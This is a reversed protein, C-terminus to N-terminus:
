RARVHFSVEGLSAGDRAVVSLTHRGATAPLKGTFPAGLSLVEEGDVRVALPGQGPTAVIKLPITQVDPPLEPNLRFVDGSSPSLIRPGEALPPAKTDGACAPALWPERAVGTRQAWDYYRPGWDVLRGSRDSLARCRGEIAPPLTPALHKHLGCTKTPAKGKAFVEDMATPCDPGALEGSLPCIRAHELGAPDYLPRPHIGAMAELMLSHFIPGAGTIGSVEVMRSGDFNGAWVAVTREHTFGATWNDSYGKSTGTKAAVAFPLRLVSDLGFARSRAANDSLIDTVQKVASADAFRHKELEPQLPIESGDVRYAHRILRLPGVVGDLSLGRYGRALEWLSVEGDGLVLGLGYHQASDTLAEFGANRLTHLLQVPGLAEAVRVAPINYSNALAERARVPGHELGDYNKPSYGGNAAEFTARLDPLTTAPSMGERFAEAYAFPKLASGPQRHMRVGDNQGEIQDNFYDASGVYALIEGTDNDVTLAAASSVRRASLKGVEDAVIEEAANQLSPDLTTVIRTADSLGWAKLNAAILEVAHPARFSSRFATLDLPEQQAHEADERPVLGLAGMRGLVWKRRRELRAFHRYPDYVAPGRPLAALAAMQALSLASAPRAFYLRSAAEVGFTGNGFSIRNLYQTLIEKKSLHAELRLAWLAEQVKGLLTRPRPVLNRALQQTLTSGGAVVRRAKVDQWFARAIATPSVGLHHFFDKDEAAIFASALNPPLQDEALPISRGDQTSLLERLLGGSRDEIRLSSIRRLALLGKPLPLAVFVVAALLAVVTVGAALRVARAGVTRARAPRRM